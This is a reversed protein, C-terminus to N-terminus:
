NEMYILDKYLDAGYVGAEIMKKFSEVVTAKDEKYTVGFWTDDTPLVVYPIGKKLMGYAIIPILYEDKFPDSTNNLFELFGVKLVDLFEQPYCWFNMSVLSDADLLNGNAEAGKATKVINKTEDIGTLKGDCIKCIGRTVGGNESLTNKLVYGVLGYSQPQVSLFEAAKM